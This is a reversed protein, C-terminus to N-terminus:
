QKIIISEDVSSAYVRAFLINKILDPIIFPFVGAVLAKTPGVFAQLYVVGLAYVIANAMTYIAFTNLKLSGSRNKEMASSVFYAAMCYGVQYGLAPNLLSFAKGGALVPFGFFAQAMFSGMMLIANRPSLYSSFLFILQLQFVFPVPTLSTYVALPSALGICISALLAAVVGFLSTGIREKVTQLKYM